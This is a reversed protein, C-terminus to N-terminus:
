GRQLNQYDTELEYFISDSLSTDRSTPRFYYTALDSLIPWTKAEHTMWFPKSYNSLATAGDLFSISVCCLPLRLGGGGVGQQFLTLREALFIHRGKLTAILESQIAWIIHLQEVCYPWLWDSFFTLAQHCIGGCCWLVYRPPGSDSDISVGRESRVEYFKLLLKKWSCFFQELFM